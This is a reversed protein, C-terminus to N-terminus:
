HQTRNGEGDILFSLQTYGTDRLRAFPVLIWKLQAQSAKTPRNMWLGDSRTSLQPSECLLNIRLKYLPVRALGPVNKEALIDIIRCVMSRLSEIQSTSTAIRHLPLSLQLSSLPAILDAADGADQDVDVQPGFPSPSLYPNSLDQPLSARHHSLLSMTAIQGLHTDWNIMAEFVRDRTYILNHCEKYIQKCTRM